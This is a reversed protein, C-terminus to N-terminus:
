AIIRAAIERAEVIHVDCPRCGLDLAAQGIVDKLANLADPAQLIYVEAVEDTIHGRTGVKVEYTKM